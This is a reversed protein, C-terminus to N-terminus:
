KGVDSRAAERIAAQADERLIYGASAAAHMASSVQSVYGGHNGYLARLEADTYWRHYGSVSCPFASGNIAEQEALPATFQALQIGGVIRGDADRVVNGDADREFSISPAAPKGTRIWTRVSDFAKSVVLGVDVTTFPPLTTCSPEIWETFSIPGDPGAISRDREVIADIYQSAYLSGHTSGAIDWRRTYESTPWSGYVPTLGESQASIAPTAQDARLEDSLDWYVFGDFVGYLPQINNYYNQLRIASQSQGTAIAEEVQLGPLPADAGGVNQKLAQTIQSFIDWSLPDGTCLATGTDGCAEVDVDLDGYREPSWLKSAEVGVRQASVVAVAYGERLLYETTEATSFELDIGVTVNTWEVVLSGNFHRPEPTRVMVRTRYDWGGDLIAATELSGTGAGSYRNAQGEAYYERQTYGAAALDVATASMPSTGPVDVETLTAAPAELPADIGVPSRHQAASAPVALGTCLLGATLAAGIAIRTTAGPTRLRSRDVIRGREENLGASDCPILAGWERGRGSSATAPPHPVRAEARVVPAGPGVCRMREGDAPAGPTM